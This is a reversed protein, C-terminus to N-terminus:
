IVDPPTTAAKLEDWGLGKMWQAWSHYTWLQGHENTTTEIRALGHERIVKGRGLDMRLLQPIERSKYGRTQMTSQAWNEGDEQELLGAPGFTHNVMKLTHARQEPPANRDVFSFWWIETRGPALPVRVSIQTVGPTVWTNPFLNPHGAVEIGFMPMPLVIM